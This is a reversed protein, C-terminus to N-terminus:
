PKVLIEVAVGAAAEAGGVLGAPGGEYDAAHTNGTGDGLLRGFLKVDRHLKEYSYGSLATVATAYSQREGAIRCGPNVCILATRARRGLHFFGFLM